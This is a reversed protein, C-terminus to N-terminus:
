ASERSFSAIALAALDLGATAVAAWTAWEGGFPLSSEGPPLGPRILYALSWAAMLHIIAAIAATRRVPARRAVALAAIVQVVIVVALPLVEFPRGFSLSLASAATPPLLGAVLMVLAM